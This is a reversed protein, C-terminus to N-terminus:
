QDPGKRKLLKQLRASILKDLWEGIDGLLSRFRWWIIGTVLAGIASAIVLIMLDSYGLNRAAETALWVPVCIIASNRVQQAHAHVISGVNLKLIRRALDLMILFNCIVAIGVGAAVGALDWRTGILAGGAVLAAYIWQRWARAYMSGLALTVADSIKYSTRFLLTAILIQFPVVMGAWDRGLLVHVLEPAIIIMYGSVPLTLLAILGIARLYARAVREPQDQLSAMTPFLVSSVAKGFLQAPLMLFQYARSYYGLAGAGLWRGVILNDVQTALFNGIQGSSFGIGPRVLEAMFGSAPWLAMPPRRLIFLVVTRFVAQVMAGIALAWAGYGYHALPLSVLGFGLVYSTLEVLSLAKFRLERELLATPISAVSGLLLSISLFEVFPTLGPMKLLQSFLDAGLFIPATLAIGALLSIAFASKIQGDTLDLKQVLVRNVGILGVREAISLIVSAAAIIGFEASELSRTLLILIAARLFVNGGVAIFQWAIGDVAQDTLSKRSM